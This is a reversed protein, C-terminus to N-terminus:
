GVHIALHGPHLNSDNRLSVLHYAYREIVDDPLTTSITLIVQVVM